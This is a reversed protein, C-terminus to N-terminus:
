NERRESRFSPFEASDRFGLRIGLTCPCPQTVLPTESITAWANVFLRAGQYEIHCLSQRRKNLAAQKKSDSFGYTLTKM